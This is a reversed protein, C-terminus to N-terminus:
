SAMGRAKLMQLAKHTIGRPAQPSGIPKQATYGQELYQIYRVANDLYYTKGDRSRRLEWGRRAFGTDIPTAQQWEFAIIRATQNLTGLTADIMRERFEEGVSRPRRKLKRTSTIALRFSDKKARTSTDGVRFSRPTTRQRIKPGYVRPTPM